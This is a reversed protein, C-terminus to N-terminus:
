AHNSSFIFNTSARAAAPTLFIIAAAPSKGAAVGSEPELVVFDSSTFDSLELEPPVVEPEIGTITGRVENGHNAAAHSLLGLVIDSRSCHTVFCVDSYQGSSLKEMFRRLSTTVLEYRQFRRLSHEQGSLLRTNFLKELCM